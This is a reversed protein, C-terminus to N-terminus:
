LIELKELMIIAENYKKEIMLKQIKELESKM